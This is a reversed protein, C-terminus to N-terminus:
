GARENFAVCCYGPRSDLVPEFATADAGAAIGQALALNTGCVLSRHEDTLADFPCNRLRITGHEDIPEYGGESLARTLRSRAAGRRHGRGLRRGTRRAADILAPPPGGDGIRELADAFLDAAGRYRRDPVTVDFERESRQYVRAPRGAGPGVRGTLRRYSADLLGADTLKDLHFAALSRSVGTAAAAQERGVAGPQAVVWDYLRRRVPDDLLRLAALDSARTDQIM